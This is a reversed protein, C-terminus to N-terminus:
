EPPNNSLNVLITRLYLNRRVPDAQFTGQEKLKKYSEMLSELLYRDHPHLVFGMASFWVAPEPDLLVASLIERLDSEPFECGVAAPLVRGRIEPSKHKLLSKLTAILEANNKWAPSGLYDGQGSESDKEASWDTSPLPLSDKWYRVFQTRTGLVELAVVAHREDNSSLLAILNPVSAEGFSRLAFVSKAFIDSYFMSKRLAYTRPTGKLLTVIEDLVEKEYGRSGFITMVKIAEAIRETKIETHLINKWEEFSKGDYRLQERTPRNSDAAHNVSPTTGAQEPPLKAPPRMTRPISSDPLSPVTQPAFPIPSNAFTGKPLDEDAIKQFFKPTEPLPKSQDIVLNAEVPKDTTLDAYVTESAKGDSQIAYIAVKGPQMRDIAFEGQDNSRPINDWVPIPIERDRSLPGDKTLPPLHRNVRIEVKPLPEGKENKVSGRIQCVCQNFDIRCQVDEELVFPVANIWSLGLVPESDNEQKSSFLPPEPQLHRPIGHGVERYTHFASNGRPYAILVEGWGDLRKEIEDFRPTVKTTLDILSGRVSSATGYGTIPSKLIVAFSIPQSRHGSNPDSPTMPGSLGIRLRGPRGIIVPIEEGENWKGPNVRVYATSKPIQKQDTAVDYSSRDLFTCDFIGESPLTITLKGTHDSAGEAPIPQLSKGLEPQPYVEAIFGPLPRGLLTKIRFTINRTTVPKSPPDAIKGLPNSIGQQQFQTPNPEFPVSAPQPEVPDKQIQKEIKLDDSTVEIPLIENASLVI